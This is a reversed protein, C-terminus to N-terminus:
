RPWAGLINPQWKRTPKRYKSCRPLVLGWDDSSHNVESFLNTVESSTIFDGGKSFISQKTTYYGYNKDYLCTSIYNMLPMPGSDQIQTLIQRKLKNM